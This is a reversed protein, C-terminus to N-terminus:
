ARIDPVQIPTYEGDRFLVGGGAPTKGLMFKPIQSAFAQTGTMSNAPSLVIGRRAKKAEVYPGGFISSVAETTLAVIFVLDRKAGILAHELPSDRLTEVDDVVITLPRGSVSEVLEAIAEPGTSTDSIVAVSHGAAVETLTSAKTAVVAVPASSWALQHVIAALASSRGTGRDGVVVFGGEEPWDLTFRSLTDGGVGVVPLEARSNASRPLAYAASLAVYSPLPDVHFPQPLEALEPFSAFHETVHAVIARLTATQGEGTSDRSLLALQAETGAPGYLARGPPMNPPVERIMIGASRYDNVDRMPLVYQTDIFSSIKDGTVSRDASVIVRIGVAPGERLVRMFQERFSIIEDASLTSSLREWGDVVVLAFPLAEAPDVIRRQEVINGVGARSLTNQRIGLEEVLRAMLRPLRGQELATVVAGTHPAETFPLLAGNGYDAVYLHLDAPTFNQIAQALLTRLASTRGSLAGGFFLLHSDTAV